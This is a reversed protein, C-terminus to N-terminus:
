SRNGAFYIKTGGTPTILNVPHLSILTNLSRFFRGDKRLATTVMPGEVADVQPILFDELLDVVQRVAHVPFADDNSEVRM